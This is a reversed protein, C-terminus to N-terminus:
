FISFWNVRHCTKCLFDTTLMWICKKIFKNLYRLGLVYWGFWLCVYEAYEANDDIHDPSKDNICEKHSNKEIGVWLLM